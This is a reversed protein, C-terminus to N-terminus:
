VADKSLILPEGDLGAIELDGEKKQERVVRFELSARQISPAAAGVM